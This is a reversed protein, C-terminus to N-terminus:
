RGVGRLRHLRNVSTAWAEARLPKCLLAGQWGIHSHERLMDLQGATDVGSVTLSLGLDRALRSVSSLIARSTASEPLTATFPRGFKVGTLPLDMLLSISTHCVGFDGLVVRYGRQRLPKLHKFLLAADLALARESIELTLQSTSLRNRTVAQELQDAIDARGLQAVSLGISVSPAGNGDVNWQGLQRCAEDIVFGHLLAVAGIREADVYFEEPALIGRSPHSWVPIAEAGDITGYRLSAVPQYEVAFEGQKVAQELMKRSIASAEDDGPDTSLEQHFVRGVSM